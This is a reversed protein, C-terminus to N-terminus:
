HENANERLHLPYAEDKADYRCENCEWGTDLEGGCEPCIDQRSSASRLAKSQLPFPAGNYDARMAPSRQIKKKM